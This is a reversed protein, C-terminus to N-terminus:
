KLFKFSANHYTGDNLLMMLQRCSGAWAKDTKWVYNYQDISANYSLSSSGATVTEEIGNILANSDCNINQSVPYNTAFINLGQNGSLNFKVPVASGAKVSNWAPLNDIPQFFGAFNYGVHYTVTKTALNGANDVAEVTFTKTGVSATDIAVGNPTTGTESYIGSLVDSTLWDAIITQKLIYESAPKNITIEPSTKDIKITQNKTPEINGANDTSRYFLTTTGETTVTFNANYTIWTANDFSYETKNVGSGVANDTATLNVQVNSTYWDNSGFTGSLSTTTTPPIIDTLTSGAQITKDFIGDGESDIQLTVGKEGNSLAVWDITYQHNQGLTTPIDIANFTYKTDLNKISILDLGYTDTDTGKVEFRYNDGSNFIIIAEDEIIYKSDPIEEKVEGNILGTVRNQSDYIRLEGPSKLLGFTYFQTISEEVTRYMLETNRYVNVICDTYINSIPTGQALSLTYSAAEYPKLNADCQNLGQKESFVVSYDLSVAAAIVEETNGYSAMKAAERWVFGALEGKEGYYNNLIIEGMNYHFDGELYNQLVNNAKQYDLIEEDNRLVNKALDYHTRANIYDSVSEDTIEDKNNFIIETFAFQSLEEVMSEFLKKIFEKTVTKPLTIFIELTDVFWDTMPLTEAAYMIKLDAKDYKQNLQEKLGDKQLKHVYDIVGIKRSIEGNTVPNGDLDTYVKVENDSSQIDLTNPDIYHNLTVINYEEGNVTVTFKNNTEEQIKLSLFEQRSPPTTDVVFDADSVLNGGFEIWAGKNGKEDIARARWHYTGDILEIASATAVSGSTILDSEKLGGKTEDFGGGYEDTRRLEVQLRVKDGDPDSVRASFVVTREATAGGVTIQTTGDSKFQSLEIPQDPNNSTIDIRFIVLGNDSDSVYAYNGAVAVEKSYGATDYSGKLTPAAPNSVDIIMLGKTGDAVYAYNGAVAVGNSEGATDYSGKLTPAAPNSVDVIVLGKSVDAVYVYNGAVAVGYSGWGTYYSGKLTPAAPNSVDVIVLGKTGDAVYAYNGAVAVGNSEGATDYSGKLTPAAPNGVDVIVLGKEYEAVYAYNGEVAVEKSYGATDYSGKLTPAVPNSVDIIILGKYWDSVYAYNGAVAVGNLNGATNYSGKLFPAAPNSVDVIVFGNYQDSMYAYNGTVAVGDSSGITNWSGKLTPAAPNSVDIIILGNNWDAVYAYNGAVAVGKSNGATDYSGKLTPAAPNSVNIIALGNFWDAVYAYNGVVRVRYSAGATNYSGKLFPAVPNSVDVIVLGNDSDAMYAYNGAVAVGSSSGVTDYSGKLFPAAPNSVDFIMLGNSGGAVYAYNGAVAVGVFSGGGGSSIYGKFTPAAPNSVDFIMLTSGDAVYAYNGTVAVGASNGPTNYSGKLTPAAPNSVDFIMLGNIGDAVYAYNGALAIDQIMGITEVRGVESPAMKNSIDLVVFDSGQGTYTINGSVEVAYTSGGLHGIKSVAVESTIEWDWKQVYDGTPTNAIATIDHVGILDSTKTFYAEMVQQDFQVALGDFYWSIDVVQDAVLHFTRTAPATDTLPTQPDYSFTIPPQTPSNDPLDVRPYFVNENPRYVGLNDFGNGDWDGILPEDGINGLEYPGMEHQDGTLGLDLYFSNTYQNPDYTRFVGIEDIGNGDWDGSIPKDGTIGYPIDLYRTASSTGLDLIYLYFTNTDPNYGGYDDGGIGDWDGSIPINNPYFGGLPITYDSSGASSSLTSWDRIVLHLISKGGDDPRFIGIEDIGDNDWDGIIPLDTAPLGFYVTKGDFDFSAANTDFTGYSDVGDGDFDGALPILQAFAGNILLLELIAIGVMIRLARGGCAKNWNM